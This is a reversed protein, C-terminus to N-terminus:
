AEKPSETHWHVRMLGDLPDGCLKCKPIPKDLVLLAMGTTIPLLSTDNVVVRYGHDDTIVSWDYHRYGGNSRCEGPSWVYSRELVRVVTGARYNSTIICLAGIEPGTLREHRESPQPHGNPWPSALDCVHDNM